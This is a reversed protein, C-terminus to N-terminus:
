RESDSREDRDVLGAVEAAAAFPDSAGVVVRTLGQAGLQGLVAAPELGEPGPPCALRRWAHGGLPLEGGVWWQVPAIGTGRVTAWVGSQEVSSELRADHRETAPELDADDVVTVMPRGSRVRLFFGANVAEAEAALLGLHVDVGAAELRAAGKGDVRPDPDLLAIACRAVRARLLADACPPTRGYHACPELSVYATAGRAADGADALAVVEAHPRGGARTAGRGVIEGAQVIVCGVSPNPWVRGLGARALALAEAMFREDM